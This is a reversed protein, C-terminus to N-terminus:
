KTLYESIYSAIKKAAEPKSFKKAAKAMKKLEEPDSFIKRLKELFFRPTFNEEELVVSAGNAAFSYANKLQHNQAALSLPILISPKGVAAIEFITSAGARSVVLDCAGYAMKLEKENLFPFLHYYEREEKTTVVESEAKVQKFNNQGSQHILEFEKLITPLIELINDNIKQAGQSGGLILIVKRGGKLKLYNTGETKSGGLVENRIPNGVLIIKQPSFYSTDPFSTFVKLSFKALIRNAMGPEADSEHLFIPTGLLWGALTVPFSGYGGKSFILDPNLFFLSFFAQITGFPIKFLVDILNDFLSKLNIYRRIKGSIIKKVKINEKSFIEKSFEDKPGYYFLEAEPLIKRLERIIAVIPFIHGATGGGTFVIKM